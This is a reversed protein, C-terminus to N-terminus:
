NILHVGLVNTPHKLKCYNFTHKNALKICELLKNIPTNSSALILYQGIPHIRLYGNKPHKFKCPSSTCKNTDHACLCGLCYSKGLVNVFTLRIKFGLDHFLFVHTLYSKLLFKNCYCFFINHCSFTGLVLISYSSPLM